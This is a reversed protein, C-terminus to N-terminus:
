AVRQPDNAPRGMFQSWGAFFGRMIGDDQGRLNEERAIVQPRAGGHIYAKGLAEVAYGDEPQNPSGPGWFENHHAVRMARDQPSDGKIGLGRWEVLTSVPSIPWTTDIRMVTGRTAVLGNPFLPVSQFAVPDVGPLCKMADRAQTSKHRDYRARMGAFNAHGNAFLTIQRNEMGEDNMVNTQRLRSHMLEHYPDMNTAQWDKWNGPVITRHFHFVELEVETLALKMFELSGDLFDDLPMCNDDLNIFVLGYKTETRIEKLGCKSMELGTNKYAGSRPISVCAGSSDYTWHHYFCTLFRANGSLQNILKASRHSCVNVFSRIVGDEGRILLLPVGVNDFTRFDFKELLESEHCVLRWVKRMILRMEDDFVKQDAFALDSVYHTKPLDTFPAKPAEILKLM